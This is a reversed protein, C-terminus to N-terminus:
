PVERVEFGAAMGARGDHRQATVRACRRRSTSSPPPASWGTRVCSEKLLSSGAAEAAFPAFAEAVEALRTSVGRM